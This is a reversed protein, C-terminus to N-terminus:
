EGKGARIMDQYISMSEEDSMDATISTAQVEAKINHEVKENFAQVGIHKGILELRKVRDSVRAKITVGDPIKEGDCYAHEQQVDLGAVLGQRWILPWQHVPKMSGTEFYLDALDAEAEHVLRNLMWDADVKLREAREAKLENIRAAVNVNKLLRAAQQPATKKSYGARIAAQSANLDIIYERCFVDQKENLTAM